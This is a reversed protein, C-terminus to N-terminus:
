GTHGFGGAGRETTELDDAVEWSVRYVKHIVMQAIRDGRKVVFPQAGHNIILIKVEGRYDADITGPSNLLTVGAKVALGSRPRIQAEYGTPLAVAIGTPILGREGPLLATDGDVAAFIDMGASAETMYRPLPLDGGHLRKVSIVVNSNM